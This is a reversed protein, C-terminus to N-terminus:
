SAKGGVLLRMQIPERRFHSRMETVYESWRSCRRALALAIQMDSERLLKFRDDKIWQGHLSGDRPIPNRARLENFVHDGLIIRWTVGYPHAMTQPERGTGDWPIRRLRALEIKMAKDWAHRPKTSAEMRLTISTLERALSSEVAGHRVIIFLRVLDRRVEMARPAKSGISVLLAQEETLWFEDAKVDVEGRGARAVRAVTARTHVGSIEGEEALRAILKRIDRPREYGLREALDIDRVRPEDSNQADLSWGNITILDVSGAPTGM